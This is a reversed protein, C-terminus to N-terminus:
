ASIPTCNTNGRVVAVRGLDSHVNHLYIDVKVWNISSDFSESRTFLTREPDCHLAHRLLGTGTRSDQIGGRLTYLVQMVTFKLLFVPKPQIFFTLIMARKKKHFVCAQLSNMYKMPVKNILRKWITNIM